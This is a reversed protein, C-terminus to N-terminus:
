AYFMEKRNKEQYESRKLAAERVLRKTMGKKQYRNFKISNVVRSGNVQRKWRKILRENTENGDDRKVAWVAM